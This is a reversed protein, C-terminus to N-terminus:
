AALSLNASSKTLGSLLGGEAQMIIEESKSLASASQAIFSDALQKGSTYEDLLQLQIAVPPIPIRIGLVSAKSLRPRGIGVIQHVIQGFVLDSRLLISLLEPVIEHEIDKKPTLVLCEASAYGEDCFDGILCAKRLEPRLKSFLLDGSTFRKVSSKISNASTLSPKCHGTISEINALGVYYIDEDELDKCPLFAENRLVCLDDITKIPYPSMALAETAKHRSPHHYPLDIRFGSMRFRPEDTNPLDIRFVRESNESSRWASLIRPLDTDLESKGTQKNIRLLADGNPKRGVRDAQAFFTSRKLSHNRAPVKPKKQLFLISSKVSAYPMFATDPLSVVALLFCNNLMLERVDANSPSNLVGDDIVIGMYGGPKLLDICREIFLVGRRRSSRGNGLAFSFLNDDGTLDSGFPPNTFILDVESFYPNAQAGLSGSGELCISKGNSVGHVNLNIATVWALRQDIELGLLEAKLDFNHSLSYRHAEILFGGTGCAPDCIRQAYRIHSGLFEIMFEAIHRPTFFQQNDGKDFTNKVVEEYCLGKLDLPVSSLDYSDLISIMKCLAEDCVQIRSFRSSQIFGLQEQLKTYSSRISSLSEGNIPSIENLAAIDEKNEGYATKMLRLYIVKTLEDFREILNSNGEIDRLCRHLQRVLRRLEGANLEKDEPASRYAKIDRNTPAFLNLQERVNYIDATEYYRYNNAPNRKAVLKGERDWNRLTAASVGLMSAAEQVSARDASKGSM